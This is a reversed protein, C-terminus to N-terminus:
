FVKEDSGIVVVDRLCTGGGFDRDNSRVFEFERDIAKVKGVDIKARLEELGKPSHDIGKERINAIATAAERSLKNGMAAPQRAACFKDAAPQDYGKHRCSTHGDVEFRKRAQTQNADGALRCVECKNGMSAGKGPSQDALVYRRDWVRTSDWGLKISWPCAVDQGSLNRYGSCLAKEDDSAKFRRAQERSCGLRDLTENNIKVLRAKKNEIKQVWSAEMDDQDEDSDDFDDSNEDDNDEELNDYKITKIDM